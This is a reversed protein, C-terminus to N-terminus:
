GLVPGSVLNDTLVWCCINWQELVDTDSCELVSTGVPQWPATYCPGLLFTCFHEVVATCFHELVPGSVPTDSWQCGSIHAQALVLTGSHELVAIYWWRWLATCFHALVSTCFWGLVSSGHQGLDTGLCSHLLM